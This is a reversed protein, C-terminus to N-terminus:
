SAARSLRQQGCDHDACLRVLVLLRFIHRRADHYMGIHFMIGSLVWAMMIEASLSLVFPAVKRPRSAPTKRRANSSPKARRRWGPKSSRRIYVGGFFWAAVAAVLISLATPTCFGM